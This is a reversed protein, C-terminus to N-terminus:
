AHAKLLLVRSPESEAIAAYGTLRALEEGFAKIEAHSPM